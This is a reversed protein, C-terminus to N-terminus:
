DSPRRVRLQPEASNLSQADRAMTGAVPQFAAVPRITPAPQVDNAAPRQSSSQALKRAQLQSASIEVYGRSFLCSRQIEHRSFALAVAGGSHLPAARVGEFECTANDQAVQQPTATPHVLRMQTCGALTGIVVSLGLFKIARWYSGM